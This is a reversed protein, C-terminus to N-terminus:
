HCFWPADAYSAIEQWDCTTSTCPDRPLAANQVNASSTACRFMPRRSTCSRCAGWESPWLADRVELCDLDSWMGVTRRDFIRVGALNLLTMARTTTLADHEHSNQPNPPTATAPLGSFESSYAHNTVTKLPRGGTGKEFEKAGM